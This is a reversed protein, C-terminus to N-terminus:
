SWNCSLNYYGGGLGMAIMSIPGLIFYVAVILFIFITATLVFQIPDKKIKPKVTHKLDKDALSNIEQEKSITKFCNIHYWNKKYRTSKESLQVDINCLTCKILNPNLFVSKDKKPVDTPKEKEINYIADINLELIRALYKKDSEFIPNNKNIRKLLYQNRGIDGASNEIADM